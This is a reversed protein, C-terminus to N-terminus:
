EINEQSIIEKSPFLLATLVGYAPKQNGLIRVDERKFVCGTDINAYHRDMNPGNPTPTHGLVQYVEPYDYIPDRHWLIDQNSVLHEAQILPSEDASYPAYLGAHSVFLKRGDGDMEDSVIYYPLNLMWEAHKEQTGKPFRKYSEETQTGGNQHWVQVNGMKGNLTADAMMKEHNGMAVKWGNDIAAQVVEASQPGRDILDGVLYVQENPCKKLLAQLTKYCGHIDGIVIM